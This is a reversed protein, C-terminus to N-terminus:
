KHAGLPMDFDRRDAWWEKHPKVPAVSETRKCEPKTCHKPSLCCRHEAQNDM